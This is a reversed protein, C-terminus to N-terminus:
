GGVRNRDRYASATEGNELRFRRSFYFPDAFGCRRAIEAVPLATEILLRRARDIRANLLFEGAPLNLYALFFRRFTTRSIGLKAAEEDWDYPRSPNRRIQGALTQLALATLCQLDIATVLVYPNRAARLLQYIGEVPGFDPLQDEVVRCPADAWARRDEVSLLVEDFERLERLLHALFTEGGHWLRAKDEGMRKSKGGALIGASIRREM